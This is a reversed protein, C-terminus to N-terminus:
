ISMLMKHKAIVILKKKKLCFLVATMSLLVEKLLFIELLWFLTLGLLWIVKCIEYKVHVFGMQASARLVTVGPIRRAAPAAAGLLCCRM